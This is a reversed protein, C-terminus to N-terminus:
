RDFTGPQLATLSVRIDRFCPHPCGNPRTLAAMVASRDRTGKEHAARASGEM